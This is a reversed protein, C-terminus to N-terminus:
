IKKWILTGSFVIDANYATVSTSTAFNAYVKKATGSGDKTDNECNKFVQTTKTAAGGLTTTTFGTVINEFEVDGTLNAIAGVAVKTGLGFDLIDTTAGDPTVSLNIYALMTMINGKPFAFLEYGWGLNDTGIVNHESVYSFDTRYTDIDIKYTTVTCNSSAVTDEIIPLNGEKILKVRNDIKTKSM